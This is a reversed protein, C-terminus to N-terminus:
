RNTLTSYPPPTCSGACHGGGSDCSTDAICVSGYGFRCSCTPYRGASKTSQAAALSPLFGALLAIVVVTTRM